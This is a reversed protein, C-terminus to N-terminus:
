KIKHTVQNSKRYTSILVLNSMLCQLVIDRGRFQLRYNAELVVNLQGPPFMLATCCHGLMFKCLFTMM